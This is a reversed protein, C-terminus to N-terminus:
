KRLDFSSAKSIIDSFSVVGLPRNEEDVVWVRHIKSALAKVLVSKTSDNPKCVIPEPAKGDHMVKLFEMVPLLISKLKSKTMFRLDSPSLNGILKGTEDIIPFSHVGEAWM